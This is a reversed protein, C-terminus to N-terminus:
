VSWNLQVQYKLYYATPPTIVIISQQLLLRTSPNSSKTLVRKKREETGPLVMNDSFSLSIFLSKEKGKEEEWV